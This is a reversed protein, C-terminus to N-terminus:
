EKHPLILSITTGKDEQSDVTVKGQHLDLIRKVVTLGIGAGKEGHTGKTSHKKNFEFLKSKFKTPIGIGHDKIVIVTEKENTTAAIIIESNEHSFKIANSLINHIANKFFPRDVKLTTEEPIDIVLSINKEELSDQLLSKLNNVTLILQVESLDLTINGFHVKSWDYLRSTYDYLDKLGRHMVGFIESQDSNFHEMFNEDKKLIELLTYAGSLPGRIDHSFISIFQEQNEFLTRLKKETKILQQHALITERAHQINRQQNPFRETISEIFLLSTGNDKVATAQLIIENNNPDYVAWLGSLLKGDSNSKFLYSADPLFVELFPFIEALEFLSSSYNHNPFVEQFWSPINGSLIFGKDTHEFAIFGLTKFVNADLHSTNTKMTLNKILKDQNYKQLITAWEISRDTNEYFQIVSEDLNNTIVINGNFDEFAVKEIIVKKTTMPFYGCFVPLVEEICKGKEVSSCYSSNSTNKFDLIRGCSETIITILQDNNLSM